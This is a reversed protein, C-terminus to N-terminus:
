AKDERRPKAQVESPAAAIPADHWAHEVIRFAEEDEQHAREADIRRCYRTAENHDATWDPMGHKWTRYRLEDGQKGNEVLWGTQTGEPLLRASLARTLANVFQGAFWEAEEKTDHPICGIVFSQVGVKFIVNHADPEDECAVPQLHVFRRLDDSLGASVPAAFTAVQVNFPLMKLSCEGWCGTTTCVCKGQACGSDPVLRKNAPTTERKNRDAAIASLADPQAFTICGDLLGNIIANFEWCYVQAEVYIRLGDPYDHKKRKIFAEAAEKTLHSNVYDWREDYGVVNHDDLDHLMSWQDSADSELFPKACLENAAADLEQRTEDSADQWYEAPSDWSMDEVCVAWKDTYDKDIGYIYRKAQVTFLADATHHWDVGEGRVHHRLRQVFNSFTEATLEAGNAISPLVPEIKTTPTM